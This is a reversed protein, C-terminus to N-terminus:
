NKIKDIESKCHKLVESTNADSDVKKTKGADDPILPSGGSYVLHALEHLIQLVQSQNRGPDYGGIRTNSFRNFFPGDKNIVASQYTRYETPNNYTTQQGSQIIGLKKDGPGAPPYGRTLIGEFTNLAKIANAGFYASCPNQTSLITRARDVAAAIEKDPNQPGAFYSVHNNLSRDHNEFDEATQVGAVVAGQFGDVLGDNYARFVERAESGTWIQTSGDLLLFPDTLFGQFHRPDGGRTKIDIDVRRPSCDNNPCERAAGAGLVRYAMSCPVFVGDLVCGAGPNELAGFRSGSGGGGGSIDGAAGSHGLSTHNNLSVNAGAPDFERRSVSESMTSGFSFEYQSAGIPSVQKLSVYTNGPVQTALLGGAPTFVYGLQKQGASNLEEVIVGGLVSSRLYYTTTMYGLSDSTERIRKGDGDFDSTTSTPVYGSPTWRQGTLFTNRGSADNTYSRTDISTIRGDADYGWGTRRGNTYSGSDYFDNLWSESVRTTTNDWANYAFTEYMPVAGLDHRAEGGTAAATLRGAHDYTYARDFNNDTTNHVFGLRGDNFYDYNQNVVGGSIDFHNVQLRANYGFSATHTAGASIQKLSGWARYQFGSAYNSVGGVLNDSGTVGNLRGANDYGYNITSNTADTIKKLEGALNYDYSLTFTGVGNFTRTEAMLQSLQNYSYTQSGLGDSMSTRNGVEDYAFSVSSTPTIGAPASFTIGTVFHRNNYAYTAAAGRADTVAHLTDDDNYTWTTHDTSLSNNPDVQQEPGHQTLLRGYGDYSMITDQYVTSTDPGQYQRVLTVQDRANFTNTTSSYVTLDTNLIETKLQRGLIDSYIKQQRNVEDTLTVVQGGACGCGGYSATKTTTDAPNGTISPNTTVLPRGKWDYTQQTYIWGAAADDGIAPWDYPNGSTSSASTETPNSSKVTRGMLDYYILQGSFGGTSGPHDAASAIVRGHGDTIKFSHAEGANDQITAYTDVRDQSTPYEYRTYANNFLNKVKQLRGLSDYEITQVPGLENDTVNPLPTQKRTAAGFDYNYKMSSSFGGADTVTTPYALTNRTNNDDSFSDAYSVTVGHSLPDLTAVVAGATNYKFSSTTSQSTNVVDHRTVSSLNGRRVSSSATYDTNHQVPADTGLISGPEDYEFTVKSFLSAGSNNNCPVEGEAGDCLYKASPLGIIRLDTYSTDVNYVIHTRRLVAIANSQYEYTDVPLNITTGDGLSTSAYDTRTRAHNNAPDTINTETVRPNLQYSINEDDQTWAVKASRQIANNSDYTDTLLPLGRKWAPASGPGGSISGAFYILQYTNDPAKVKAMTVTQLSNDPLAADIPADFQTNVEQATGNADRNWNEAWDHRVTFRPCDTQPTSNDVPLNYSRYNLLHVNTEGTYQRIKWVQGWSTYDFDFHSDDALKVQTLAHITSNNSPGYVTLNTFNTQIQTDTYTFTAWPHVLTQGNVKWSQTITGLSGSTDYNFTITRSLTDKVTDVRGLGDYNITIFNGNRDKIETCEYDSGKWAYSLQTGDTTRLKMTSANLLVYSSDVSQYLTSAGVQRLELRSGSPTVMIFSYKGAQSNYFNGQIVPFGLRFGPAPSGHDDDFSIANGNRTWTALSNYALSLGLDLGSRGPLGVLPISWNFNRSLPDEGGGGTRNLPDL